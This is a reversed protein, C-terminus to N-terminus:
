EGDVAGASALTGALTISPEDDHEADAAGLQIGLLFLAAAAAPWGIRGLRAAPRRRQRARQARVALRGSEPAPQRSAALYDEVERMRALADRAAPSAALLEEAPARQAPPWRTAEGGHRDLLDEFEGPTM